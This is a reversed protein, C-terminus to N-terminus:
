TPPYWVSPSPSCFLRDDGDLDVKEGRGFKGGGGGGGGGGGSSGLCRRSGPLRLRRLASGPLIRDRLLGLEFHPVRDKRRHEGLLFTLQQPMKHARTHTTYM